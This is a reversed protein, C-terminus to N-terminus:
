QADRGVVNRLIIVYLVRGPTQEAGTEGNGISVCGTCRVDTWKPEGVPPAAGAAAPGSPRGSRPRPRTHWLLLGATQPRHAHAPGRPQGPLGPSCRCSCICTVM